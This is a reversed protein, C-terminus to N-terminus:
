RGSGSLESSTNTRSAAAVSHPSRVDYIDFTVHADTGAQISVFKGIGQVATNGDDVPPALASM